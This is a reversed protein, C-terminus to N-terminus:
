EIFSVTFEPVINEPYPFCFSVSIYDLNSMPNKPNRNMYCERLLFQCRRYITRFFPIHYDVVRVVDEFQVMRGNKYNGILQVGYCNGSKHLICKEYFDEVSSSNIFDVKYKM